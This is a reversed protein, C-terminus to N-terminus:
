TRSRSSGPSRHARERNSYGGSARRQSVGSLAIPQFSFGSLNALAARTRVACSLFTEAEERGRAVDVQHGFTEFYEKMTLVIAEEDDVILLRHGM